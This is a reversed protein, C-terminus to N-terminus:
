FFFLEGFVPSNPTRSVPTLLAASRQRFMAGRPHFEGRSGPYSFPAHVSKNQVDLSKRKSVLALVTFGLEGISRGRELPPLDSEIEKVSAIEYNMLIKNGHIAVHSHIESVRIQPINAECKAYGFLPNDM